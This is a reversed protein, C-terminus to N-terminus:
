HANVYLWKDYDSMMAVRVASRDKRSHIRAAYDWILHSFMARVKCSLRYACLMGQWLGTGIVFFPSRGGVLGADDDRVPRVYVMRQVSKDLYGHRVLHGIRRCVWSRTVGLSRAISGQAIPSCPREAETGMDGNYLDASSCGIAHILLIDKLLTVLERLTYRRADVKCVCDSVYEKGSQSRRKASSKDVVAVIKQGVKESFTFKFLRSRRAEALLKCATYYGCHLLRMVSRYDSGYLTSNSYNMKIAVYFAYLEWSGGDGVHERLSRVIVNYKRQSM